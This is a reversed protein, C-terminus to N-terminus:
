VLLLLGGLGLDQCQRNGSNARKQRVWKQEEGLHGKRRKEIIREEGREGNALHQKQSSIMENISKKAEDRRLIRENTAMGRMRTVIEAFQISRGRGM